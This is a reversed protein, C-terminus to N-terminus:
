DAKPEEAAAANAAKSVESQVQTVAMEMQAMQDFSASLIGLQSAWTMRAVGKGFVLLNAVQKDDTVGMSTRINQELVPLGTEWFDDFKTRVQEGAAARERVQALFPSEEPTPEESLQEQAEDPTQPEDSMPEENPEENLLRTECEQTWRGFDVVVKTPSLVELVTGVPIRTMLRTM